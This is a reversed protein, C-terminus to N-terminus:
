ADDHEWDAPRKITEYVKGTEDGVFSWTGDGNYIWSGGDDKRCRREISEIAALMRKKAPPNASHVYMKPPVFKHNQFVEVEIWLLVDYGTGFITEDGLDHDLSIESVKGQKLFYIADHANYVRHYGDPTPREDDLFIKM